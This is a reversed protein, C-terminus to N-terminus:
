LEGFENKGGQKANKMSTIVAKTTVVFLYAFLFSLFGIGVILSTDMMTNLRSNEYAIIRASNLSLIGFFIAIIFLGNKLMWHQSDFVLGLIFAFAGMAILSLIIILGFLGTTEKGTPSVIVCLSGSEYTSGDTCIIQHCVEGLETYNGSDITLYFLRGNQIMATNFITQNNNPYIISSLNCSTANNSTISLTYDTTQEHSIAIAGRNNPLATSFFITGFLSILVFVFFYYKKM